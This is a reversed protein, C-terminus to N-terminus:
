TNQLNKNLSFVLIPEELYHDTEEKVLFEEFSKLVELQIVQIPQCWYVPVYRYSDEFCLGTKEKVSKILDDTLGEKIIIVAPLHEQYHKGLSDLKVITESQEKLKQKRLREVQPIGSLDAGEKTRWVRCPISAYIACGGCLYGKHFFWIPLVFRENTLYIDSFSIGRDLGGCSFSVYGSNYLSFSGSKCTQGSQGHISCFYVTQGDPLFLCDGEIPIESKHYNEVHLKELEKLLKFDSEVKRMDVKTFPYTIYNPNYRNFEALQFENEVLQKRLHFQM